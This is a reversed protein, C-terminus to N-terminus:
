AQLTCREYALVYQVAVRPQESFPVIFENFRYPLSNTGDIWKCSLEPNYLTAGSVRTEWVPRIVKVSDWDSWPPLRSCRRSPGDIIECRSNSVPDRWHWVTEDWDREARFEKKDLYWLKQQQLEVHKGLYARAVLAIRVKGGDNRLSKLQEDESGILSTLHQLDPDISSYQDAKDSVDALYTGRAFQQYGSGPDSHLGHQLILHVNEPSTGHLLLYENKGIIQQEQALQQLKDYATHVHYNHGDRAINMKDRNEIYKNILESNIKWAAKIKLNNYFGSDRVDFGRGLSDPQDPVFLGLLIDMEGPPVSVFRKPQIWRVDQCRPCIFKRCELEGVQYHVELHSIPEPCEYCIRKHKAVAKARVWAQATHSYIAVAEGLKATAM